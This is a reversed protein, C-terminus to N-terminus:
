LNSGASKEKKRISRADLDISDYNIPRVLFSCHTKIKGSVSVKHHVIKQRALKIPLNYKKAVLTQLRRELFAKTNIDNINFLEKEVLVGLSKLRNLVELYTPNNTPTRRFFSRYSQAMAVYKLYQKKTNLGYAILVKRENEYRQSNHISSKIQYPSRRIKKTM